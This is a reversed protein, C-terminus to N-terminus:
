LKHHMVRHHLISGSHSGLPVNKDYRPLWSKDNTIYPNYREINRGMGVRVGTTTQQERKMQLVEIVENRRTEITGAVM